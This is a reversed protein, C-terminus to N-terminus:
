LGWVELLFLYRVSPDAAATGVVWFFQIGKLDSALQLTVHQGQQEFRGVHSLDRSFDPTAAKLSGGGGSGMGALEWKVHQNAAGKVEVDFSIQGGSPRTVVNPLDPQSSSSGGNNFAINKLRIELQSPSAEPWEHLLHDTITVRVDSNKQIQAHRFLQETKGTQYPIEDKLLTNGIYVAYGKIKEPPLDGISSQEWRVSGDKVELVQPPRLVYLEFDANSSESLSPNSLWIELAKNAQDKGFHPLTLSQEQYLSRRRDLAEKQAYDANAQAPNAFILTKLLQNKGAPELVLLNDGNLETAFFALYNSALAPLDRKFAVYLNNNLLNTTPKDLYARAYSRMANKVALAFTADMEPHTVLYQGYQHVADGLGEFALTGQLKAHLARSDRVQSERLTDPILSAYSQGSIWDLFHGLAYYSHIDTALIPVSLYHEINKLGDSYHESREVADLNLARAALYQATAEIFWVNARGTFLGYLSYYQGQLVHVLEHAATQRMDAYNQLVTASFNAPGGLPSNGPDTGTDLVRVEIPTDLAKFLAQGNKDQIALLGKYAENLAQDLDEIYNPIHEAENRGTGQWDADKKVSAKYGYSSPYYTIRFASDEHRVSVANKFIYVRIRYKLPHAASIKLVEPPPPVDFQVLQQQPDWGSFVGEAVWQQQEAAYRELQFDAAELGEPLHRKSLPFRLTQSESSGAVWVWEFEGSVDQLDQEVEGTAARVQRFGSSLLPASANPGPTSSPDPPMIVALFDGCASLSSALVGALLCKFIQRNKM